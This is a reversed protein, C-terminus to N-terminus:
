RLIRFRLTVTRGTKGGLRATLKFEYRGPALVRTGIRGSFHLKNTGAQDGHTFSGVRVFRVCGRGHGHKGPKVCRRHRMIGQRAALIVFTTKAALSDAYRVTAGRHRGRGAKFSAPRLTVHSLRPVDSMTTFTQDQSATTGDPSSVLIRYHYTTKPTLSAMNVTVGALQVGSM